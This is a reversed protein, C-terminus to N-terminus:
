FKVNLGVNYTKNHPYIYGWNSSPHEPDMYKLKTFTLLNYGSVYIRLNKIGLKKILKQPITYGLELSKLRLYSANQMNFPSNELPMSGTYAYYGEVWKINPDYPDAMPDAPHWRDTFQSLAGTGGWLPERLMETYSITRLAVGQLLINLDIGKWAAKITIGYNILPTSNTTSIPHLDLDSIIGDGNWDEYIYDGLLTERSIYVPSNIIDDWSRFRGADNYGWYINAMRGTNKERWRLYSSRAEGEEIDKYQHRTYSFNGRVEYSFDGIRNIHSLELEFGRNQDSNLNEQPLATGVIDPLSLDRTTLLGSRDRQFVEITGGLLGNWAGFDLGINFMKSKMWSIEYNPVGTSSSSNVFQGNFISGAPKGYSSGGSTPYVYGQYFQFMLSSDDGLEGYSARLKLNDIFALPSNKWFSEESVRWAGQITPFMAWRHNPPFKASGDYRFSFEFLYRSKYDYNFRGVLAQAALDYLASDNAFMSGIQNEAAGASLRDIPLPLDRQAYFNDGKNWSNEFLLLAGVTHDGFRNNYNVSFNWLANNKAFYQRNLRQPSQKVFANYTETAENYRYQSYEKQFTTNDSVDYDYSYMGKLQLGKLFPVDYIASISSQFWKNAFKGYGTIDSSM